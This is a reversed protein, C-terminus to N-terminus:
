CAQRYVLRRTERSSYVNQHTLNAVQSCQGCIACREILREAPSLVCLHTESNHWSSDVFRDSTPGAMLLNCGFNMKEVLSMIENAPRALPGLETENLNEWASLIQKTVSM